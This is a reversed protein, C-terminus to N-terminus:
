ASSYTAWSTATAGLLINQTTTAVEVGSSNHEKFVAQVSSTASLGTTTKYAVSFGLLHGQATPIGYQAAPTAGGIGDWTSIRADVTGSPPLDLRAASYSTVPGGPYTNAPAQEWGLAATGTATGNLG